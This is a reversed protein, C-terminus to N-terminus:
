FHLYQVIAKYFVGTTDYSWGSGCNYTFLLLADFQNQNLTVGTRDMFKHLETEFKILFSKLLAEAEKESIGHEKYYDLMDDPCKTGYGVTWQAYDWYPKSSFGEEKKLIAIAESSTHMLGDDVVPPEPEVPTEGGPETPNEEGSPPPTEQGPTSPTESEPTTPNQEGAETEPETATTPEDAAAIIWLSNACLVVALLLCLLKRSM